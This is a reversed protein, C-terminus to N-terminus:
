MSGTPSYGRRQGRGRLAANFSKKREAVTETHKKLHTDLEEPGSGTVKTGFKGEHHTHTWEGTAKKAHVMEGRAPHALGGARPTTFGHKQAVGAIAKFKGDADRPQEADHFHFHVAM